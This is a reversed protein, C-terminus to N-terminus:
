MMMMMTLLLLLLWCSMILVIRMIMMKMRYFKMLKLLRAPELSQRQLRKLLEMRKIVIKEVSEPFQALLVMFPM